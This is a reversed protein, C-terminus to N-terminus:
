PYCNVNGCTSVSVLSAVLVRSCTWCGGVCGGVCSTACGVCKGCLCCVGGSDDDDDDVPEGVPEGVVLAREISFTLDRRMVDVSPPRAM